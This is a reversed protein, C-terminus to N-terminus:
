LEDDDLYDHSVVQADLIAIGRESMWNGGSETLGVEDRLVKRITKRLENLETRAQDREENARDLDDICWQQRELLDSTWQRLAEVVDAAQHEMERKTHKADTSM